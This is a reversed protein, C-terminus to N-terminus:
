QSPAAGAAAAVAAAAAPEQETAPAEAPAPSGSVMGAYRVAEIRLITVQEKHRRFRHYGTRRRMKFVNQTATTTQEEVTAEVTADAVYPKGLVTFDRAGVLLVKDFSLRDGVEVDLHDVMVADSVGVKYQAANVNIVAFMEANDIAQEPQRPNFFKGMPHDFRVSTTLQEDVAGQVPENGKPVIPPVHHTLTERKLRHITRKRTNSSVARSSVAWAAAPASAGAASSAQCVVGRLLPLAQM